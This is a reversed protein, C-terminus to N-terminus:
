FGPEFIQIGTLAEVIRIIWYSAFLIAFGGLAGGITKGGQGTKEPNGANIIMSLGGIIIFFFLIVGAIVYINKIILSILVGPSSFTNTVPRTGAEDLTFAKSLNFALQHMSLFLIVGLM